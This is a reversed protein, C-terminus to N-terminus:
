KNEDSSKPNSTQEKGVTEDILKSLYMGHEISDDLKFSFEPTFRLTIRQGIERRIFGAAHKLAALADNKKENDGYVSVYVKAYRLDKTVNVGTISVFEPLRPDKIHNQIIDSVEKKIEESIRDTRDM